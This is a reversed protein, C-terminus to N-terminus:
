EYIFPIRYWRENVIPWPVHKAKFVCAKFLVNGGAAYANFLVGHRLSAVVTIALENEEPLSCKL